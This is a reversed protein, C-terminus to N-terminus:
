PEQSPPPTSSAGGGPHPTWQGQEDNWVLLQQPGVLHEFADLARHLVTADDTELRADVVQDGRQVRLHFVTPTTTPRPRIFRKLGEYLANSLVGLGLPLIVCLFVVAAPDHAFEYRRGVQVTGLTRLAGGASLLDEDSWHSADAALELAVTADRPGELSALPESCAFSFGGPVGAAKTEQEYENWAAADVEFRIWVESFGDPTPRVGADRITADLPRRIDHQMVMPVRGSRIENAIRALLEEGLRVGGYAPM